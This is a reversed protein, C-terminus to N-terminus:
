YKVSMSLEQLLLLWVLDSWILWLVIYGVANRTTAALHAIAAKNFKQQFKSIRLLNFLMVVTM